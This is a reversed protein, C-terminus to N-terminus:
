GRTLSSSSVMPREGSQLTYNEVFHKYTDKPGIKDPNAVDKLLDEHDTELLYLLHELWLQGPEGSRGSESSAELIRQFVFDNERCPNNLEDKYQMSRRMFLNMFKFLIHIDKELIDIQQALLLYVIARIV